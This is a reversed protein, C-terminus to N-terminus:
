PNVSERQRWALATVTMILLLLAWWTNVPVAVPPAGRIVIFTVPPGDPTQTDISTTQTDPTVPVNCLTLAANTTDYNLAYCAQPNPPAPALAVPLQDFLFQGNGDTVMDAIFDDGFDDCDFDRYLSIGVGSIGEGADQMGNEPSDDCYLVGSVQGNSAYVGADISPDIATLNINRVQGSVPDADSDSADDGPTDQVTFVYAVPLGTFEVCYPGADLGTFNYFGDAAPVGGNATSTTANAVGTCAANHYLNVTIGNVGPELADQIGDQNNDYWVYDGLSLLDDFGFNNNTSNPTNTDLDPGLTSPTIGTDCGGLDVDAVDVETIYCLASGVPGVPLNSFLYDGAPNATDMTVATGAEAGNVTDSCDSDQYLTIGINPLVSDGDGPDYSTNANTSSECWALGAISGNLFVGADISPDDATLNINQVRGTGTDADSDISDDGGVNQSTFQHGAPLGAFEVCYMGAALGTFEYFGDAAPLGGNVTTTTSVAAGSCAANAYLNVTVGNVGPEGVSQTGDQNTDYWVFDGLSLLSPVSFGFDLTHNNAGDLGTTFAIVADGGIAVADNDSLDTTNDNSAIGNANVVTVVPSPLAVDALDIRVEYNRQSLVTGVTMNINTLGGFLYQGSANTTASGVQAGGNDMDHLRVVVGAIAAEGPDQIGNGNSDFWVYNGIEMPASECRLEVDGIGMGKALTPGGSNRYFGYGAFESGPSASFSNMWLIGGQFIETPDLASSLLHGSGPRVAFGGQSLETHGSTATSYFEGGGPGHSNGTGAGIQSGVIGNSELTWAVGDFDARLMEGGTVAQNISTNGPTTNPAPSAVGYQMGTRDIFGLLMDGDEAFEIDSLIPQPHIPRSSRMTVQGSTALNTWPFWQCGIAGSGGHGQACGRAYNLPINLVNTYIGSVPDLEYVAASLDPFDIFNATGPLPPPPPYPAINENSCVVGVYVKSQHYKVAWPHYDGATCGPDPVPFATVDAATPVVGNLGIDVAYATKDGLSMLWLAQSDESIDLDGIGAKGVTEYTLNDLGPNNGNPPDEGVVARPDAGINIGISAVDLFNSVVPAGGSYDVRYIGGLGLPGYGSHRKLVTAAFFSESSRQYALGWTPGMEAGFAVHGPANNPLSRNYDVFSMADNTAANSGPSLPDGILYCAAVVDPNLQCYDAPNNFGVDVTAGDAAFVVSTGGASGPQLFSLAGSGPLTFELRLPGAPLGSLTYSGDNATLQPSTGVAINSDDYANVIVGGVGLELAAQSGDADFDKFVTGNIDAQVNVAGLIGLVAFFHLRKGLSKIM